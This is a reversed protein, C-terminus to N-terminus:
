APLDALLQDAPVFMEAYHRVWSIEGSARVLAFSHSPADGHGYQGLMGYAASVRRDTDVARLELSDPDLVSPALDAHGHLAVVGGGDLLQYPAAGFQFPSLSFEEEVPYLSFAPGSVGIQYLNWWGPWDSVFCVTTADRWQPWLVSEGVGGKLTYPHTLPGSEPLTAVRLETGDWPMRPHNWTIWALRAGDPSPQPSAYFDAGDTLIRVADPDEAAAGSLPVAVLARRVGADHHEERVCIV